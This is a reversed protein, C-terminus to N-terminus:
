QKKKAQEPHKDRLHAAFTGTYTKHCIYCPKKGPM